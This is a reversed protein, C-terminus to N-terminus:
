RSSLSDDVLCAARLITHPRHYRIQKRGLAGTRHAIRAALTKVGIEGHLQMPTGGSITMASRVAATRVALAFFMAAGTMM